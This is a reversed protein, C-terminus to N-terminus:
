ICSPQRGRGISGRQDANVRGVDPSAVVGIGGAGTEAAQRHDPATGLCAGTTGPQGRPDRVGRVLVGPVVRSRGAGELASPCPCRDGRLLRRGHRQVARHPRHVNRRGYLFARDASATKKGERIASVSSPIEGALVQDVLEDPVSPSSLELVTGAPLHSVAESRAGFRRAAAMFQEASRRSLAFETDLWPGFQGHGLMEKAQILDAGIAMIDAASRQLRGRVRDALAVLEASQQASLKGTKKVINSGTM